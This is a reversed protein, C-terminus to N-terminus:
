VTRGVDTMTYKKYNICLQQNLIKGELLALKIEQVLKDIM